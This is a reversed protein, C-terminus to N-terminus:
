SDLSDLAALQTLAQVADPGNIVIMVQGNWRAHWTSEDPSLRRRSPAKAGDKVEFLYNHGNYGVLLDPCGCGVGALSEVSAGM